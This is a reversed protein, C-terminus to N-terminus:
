THSTPNNSDLSTGDGFDWEWQLVADTEVHVADLAAMAEFVTDQGTVVAVPNPGNTVSALDPDIMPQVLTITLDSATVAPSGLLLALAVLSLILVVPTVRPM